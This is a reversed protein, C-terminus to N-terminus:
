AVSKKGYTTRSAARLVHQLHKQAWKIRQELSVRSQTEFSHYAHAYFFPMRRIFADGFVTRKVPAAWRKVLSEM